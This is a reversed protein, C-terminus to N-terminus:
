IDTNETFRRPGLQQEEMMAEMAAAMVEAAERVRGDAELAAARVMAREMIGNGVALTEASESCLPPMAEGRAHPHDALLGEQPKARPTGGLAPCAVCTALLVGVIRGCALVLWAWVFGGVAGLLISSSLAMGSSDGGTANATYPPLERQRWLVFAPYDYILAYVAGVALSTVLM